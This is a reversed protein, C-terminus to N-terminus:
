GEGGNAALPGPPPSGALTQAREWDLCGQLGARYDPYKLVVGLEDKIRTNHVRKNDAYFSRAMPVMDAEDYPILPPAEIGLLECAYAIVEHSPAANDDALNYIAGPNPKNMSAILTQVIDDIHIRSFAHGKKEIRRAVGARVSDLASRGPGYIGALRFIHVPLANKFLANLWQEEARARRSGRKNNPRVESNEDVWGGMRDGYVGTSSLYGVWRLTPIALIDDVHMAYTPDGMDDPPTSILLHTTGKLFRQPDNLPKRYDFLFAHIGQDQMQAKKEQDRTTGAIDWGGMTKLAHGLHDCSYGYGFCFLKQNGSSM